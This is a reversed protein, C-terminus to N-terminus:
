TVIFQHLRNIACRSDSGVMRNNEYNQNARWQHM